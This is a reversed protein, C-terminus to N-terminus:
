FKASKLYSEEDIEEQSKRKEVARSVSRKCIDIFEQADTKSFKEAIENANEMGVSEGENFLLTYYLIIDIEKRVAKLAGVRARICLAVIINILENASESDQEAFVRVQTLICLLTPETPVKTTSVLTLLEQVLMKVIQADGKDNAYTLVRGAFRVTATLALENDDKFGRAIFAVAPRYGICTSFLQPSSILVSSLVMAASQKTIYHPIDTTPSPINSPQEIGQDILSQPFPPLPIGVTSIITAIITYAEVLPVVSVLIGTARSVEVRVYDHANTSTLTPILRHISELITSKPISEFQARDSLIQTVAKAIKSAVIRHQHLLVASVLDNFFTEPKSLFSLAHAARECIIDQGQIVNRNDVAAVIEQGSANYIAKAAAEAEADVALLAKVLTTKLQSHFPKLTKAAKKLLLAITSLINSKIEISIKDAFIRILFGTLKMAYLAVGNQPTLDVLDLIISSCQNRITPQAVNSVLGHQSIAIITTTLMGHNFVPLELIKRQGTRRSKGSIDNFQTRIFTLHKLMEDAHDSSLLAQLADSALRIICELDNEFFSIITSMAQQFNIGFEDLKIADRPDWHNGHSSRPAPQNPNLSMGNISTLASWFSTMLKLWACSDWSELYNSNGLGMILLDLIEYYNTAALGVFVNYANHSLSIEQQQLTSYLELKEEQTIKRQQYESERQALPIDEDNDMEVTDNIDTFDNIFYLNNYLASLAHSLSHLVQELYSSFSKGCVTTISAICHVHFQTIPSAIFHPIAFDLCFRQSQPISIVLALSHLIDSSPDYLSQNGYHRFRELEDDDISDWDPSSGYKELLQVYRDHYQDIAGLLLPMIEKTVKDSGIARCYAGFAIKASKRVMEERDCLASNIIPYLDPNYPSLMQKTASLFIEAFGLCVGSRTYVDQSEFKELLIPVIDRLIRDGLKSVLGSLSKAATHQRGQDFSALDATIREVLRPLIAALMRSSSPSLAKWVRGAVTAVSGVFDSRMLFLSSYIENRNEVSILELVQLEQKETTIATKQKIVGQIQGAAVAEDEAEAITLEGEIGALRLIYCAALVIAGTRVRSDTDLLAELITALLEASQTTAFASVIVQSSQQAFDRVRSHHDGLLGVTVPLVKVVLPAFKPGFIQPLHLILETYGERIIPDRHSLAPLITNEYYSDLLSLPKTTLLQSLGFCCGSRQVATTGDHAYILNNGASPIPVQKKALIDFLLSLLSNFQNLLADEGYVLQLGDPIEDGYSDPNFTFPKLSNAINYKEVLSRQQTRVMQAVAKATVNRIDPTSDMLTIQMAKLLKSMYPTIDSLNSTIMSVSGSIQLAIKKLEQSHDNSLGYFVIPMMMALAIPDVYNMFITTYLSELARTVTAINTNHLAKVIVASSKKIQPNKIVSSLLNLVNAAELSVEKSSDRRLEILRPIISPLVTSLDKSSFQVVTGLLQLTSVKTRWTAIDRLGSVLLPLILKAGGKLNTSAVRMMTKSLSLTLHRIQPESGFFSLIKPLIVQILVSVQQPLFTMLYM